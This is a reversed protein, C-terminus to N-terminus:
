KVEELKKVDFGAEKLLKLKLMRLESLEIELDLIKRELKVLAMKQAKTLKRM